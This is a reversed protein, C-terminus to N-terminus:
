GKKMLENVYEAARSLMENRTEPECNSFFVKHYIVKEPYEVAGILVCNQLELWEGDKNLVIVKNDM